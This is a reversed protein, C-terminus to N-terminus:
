FSAHLRKKKKKKRRRRKKKNSTLLRFSHRNENAIYIHLPFFFCYLSFEISRPPLSDLSMACVSNKNGHFFFFGFADCQSFIQIPTM